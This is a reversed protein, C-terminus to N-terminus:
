NLSECRNESYNREETKKIEVWEIKLSLKLYCPPNFNMMYSQERGSRIWCKDENKLLKSM